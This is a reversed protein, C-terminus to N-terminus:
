VDERLLQGAEAHGLRRASFYGALAGTLVSLLVAGTGFLLLTGAGPMLYPLNLASRVMGQFPVIFLAGLLVGCLAGFFSVLASEGLLLGSVMKGSAGIVRLVAFEKSREHAIMAFAIALIVIALIWILFTLIGVMRSVGSLGASIGSIMSAAQSAECNRVHINIDGSVKAPDYGEAVRVMVASVAHNPDVKDFYHFGLEQSRKMMTRITNMNTYVATDLGTGTQDLQAIVRCDVDYLRIIGSVPLSINSGVIIDGDGMTGGFSERIWPQITFDKEPDFGIVQVAVSCCGASASALYFQPAAEAVGDMAAIKEYNKGDMYFTGPIGQLLVSEFEGKTRAEYPVAVVDAGLRAEYSRLGNRLSGLLVSGAFVTMALFASLLVLAATRVPKRCMNKVALMRVFGM